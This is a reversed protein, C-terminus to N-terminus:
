QQDSYYRQSIEGDNNLKRCSNREELINHARICCVFSLIYLRLVSTISM